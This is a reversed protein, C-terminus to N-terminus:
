SLRNSETLVQKVNVHRLLTLLLNWLGLIVLFISHNTWHYSLLNHNEKYPNSERIVGMIILTDDTRIRNSVRFVFLLFYTKYDTDLGQCTFLIIFHHLAYVKITQISLLGQHHYPCVALRSRETLESNPEIGISEAILKLSYTLLFM